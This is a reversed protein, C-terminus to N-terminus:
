SMTDLYNNLELLGQEFTRMSTRVRGADAAAAAAQLSASAQALLTAGLMACVGRLRHALRVIEQFDQRSVCQRLACADAENNHRLDRLVEAHVQPDGGTIAELLAMDLLGPAPQLARSTLPVWRDLRRCIEELTVPKIVVDDMGAELCSATAEALANATCGIIPTRRSGSAERTRIKRALEFGSMGPMNCDTIVAAFRGSEWACLAQLGDAASEAAYGLTSVQRMLVMRNVQHDDVVLLLTGDASAQEVSPATPRSCVLSNLRDRGSKCPQEHAAEQACVDLALSLTITTGQGLVSGLSVSGGMLEALRRAIFLGLGTGGYRATTGADAQVFPQFLRGIRDEPIGAGTDQVVVLLHERQPTRRALEVRVQVGGRETFKIANSVVNNLIQGLRLADFRLVPAIEPSVFTELAIDKCDAVPAHLRTVHDIVTRISSPAPDLQLSNAEIKSFDLLEDIIAQLTRGSERAVRLTSRQETDLQSLDLLELLGLLGALPTRIEHSMTALFGSKATNAREAEDRAQALEATRERVRTELSQNVRQLSDHLQMRETIDQKMVMIGVIRGDGDYCPVKDSQLCVTRGDLGPVREMRGLSPMGTAIIDMDEQALATARDLFVQSATLGTAQEVSLGCFTAARRNIQLIRGDRDKFWVMAPTLDFLTRLESRQLRLDRNAAAAQQQAAKLEEIDTCTGIWKALRGNDEVPVGRLLWWRNRGDADCIRVELSFVAPGRAFQGSVSARDDPHVHRLWGWGLSDGLSAGTHDLWRQNVYTLEGSPTATWVMQPMASALYRFEAFSEALAQESRKRATVDRSCGVLFDVSGDRNCAPSFIYEYWGDSGDAAVFSMEDKVTQGHQFVENFQRRLRDAFEPLYGLEAPSRGCAQALTKGWVRLTPENAWLVRGGRDIAYTLDATHTLMLDLMRARRQADLPLSPVQAPPTRRAARQATDDLVAVDAEPADHMAAQRTAQGIRLRAQAKRLLLTRGRSDTVADTHPDLLATIREDLDLLQDVLSAIKTM